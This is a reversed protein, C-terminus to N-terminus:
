LAILFNLILILKEVLKIYIGRIRRYWIIHDLAILIPTVGLLIFPNPLM